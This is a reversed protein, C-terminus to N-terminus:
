PAESRTVTCGVALCRGDPGCAHVTAQESPDHAPMPAAPDDPEETRRGSDPLVIHVRVPAARFRELGLAVGDEIAEMPPIAAFAQEAGALRRALGATLRADNAITTDKPKM